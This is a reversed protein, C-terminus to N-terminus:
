NFQEKEITIFVMVGGGSEQRETKEYPVKSRKRYVLAKKFCFSYVDDLFIWVFLFESSSTMRVSYKIHNDDIRRHTRAETIENVIIGTLEERSLYIKQHNEEITILIADVLEKSDSLFGLKRYLEVSEAAGHLAPEGEAGRMDSERYM